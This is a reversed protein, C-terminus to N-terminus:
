AEPPPTLIEYAMTSIKQVLPQPYAIALDAASPEVRTLNIEQAGPIYCTVGFNGTFYHPLDDDEDERTIEDNGLISHNIISLFTNVDNIQRGCADYVDKEDTVPVFMTTNIHIFLLIYAFTRIM